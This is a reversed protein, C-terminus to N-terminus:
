LKRIFLASKESVNFVWNLADPDQVKFGAKLMAGKFEGNFTFVRNGKEDCVYTKMGYSTHATNFSKSPTLNNYIWDLLLEQREQPLADFLEPYDQETWNGM